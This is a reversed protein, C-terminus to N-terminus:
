KMNNITAEIGVKRPKYNILFDGKKKGKAFKSDHIFSEIPYPRTKHRAVDNDMGEYEIRYIASYIMTRGLGHYCHILVPYNAKDDLVEFFKELNKKTPVQPSKINVYKVGDIKDIVAKEESPFFRDSKENRLDIVTKINFEKIREPLTVEDMAGSKYVKGETITGFNYNINMNWYDYLGISLIVVLLFILVRKIFKGIM